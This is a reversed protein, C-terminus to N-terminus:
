HVPSTLVRLIFSLDFHLCKQLSRRVGFHTMDRLYSFHPWLYQYNRCLLLSLTMTVLLLVTTIVLIDMIHVLMKPM